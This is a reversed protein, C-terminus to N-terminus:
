LEHIADSLCLQNIALSDGLLNNLSQHQSMHIKPRLRFLKWERTKASAALRGFGEQALAQPQGRSCAQNVRNSNCTLTEEPCPVEMDQGAAAVLLRTEHPLFM